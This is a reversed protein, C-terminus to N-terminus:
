LNRFIDASTKKLTEHTAVVEQWARHSHFLQCKQDRRPLGQQDQSDQECLQRAHEAAIFNPNQLNDTKKKSNPQESVSKQIGLPSPVTEINKTQAYAFSDM